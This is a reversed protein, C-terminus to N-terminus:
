FVEVPLGDVLIMQNGRFKWLLRKVWMVLRV